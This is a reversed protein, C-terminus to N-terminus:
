VVAVVAEPPWHQGLRDVLVVFRDSFECGALMGVHGAIINAPRNPALM